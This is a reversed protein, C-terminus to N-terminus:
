YETSGGMSMNHLDEVRLTEKKNQSKMHLCEKNALVRQIGLCLGLSNLKMQDLGTKRLKLM